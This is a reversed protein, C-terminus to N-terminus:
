KQDNQMYRGFCKTSYTPLDTKSLFYLPFYLLQILIESKDATSIKTLEGGWKNPEDLFGEGQWDEYINHSKPPVTATYLM